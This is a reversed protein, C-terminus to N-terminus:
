AGLGLKSWEARETAVVDVTLSEMTKVQIGSGATVRSVRASKVSLLPPTPVENNRFTVGTGGVVIAWMVMSCSAAPSTGCVVKVAEAAFLM